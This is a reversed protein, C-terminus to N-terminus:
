GKFYNSKKKSKFARPKTPLYENGFKNLIFDRLMSLADNSIRFSDTRMYTILSLSGEDGLDIGEYLQQAIM